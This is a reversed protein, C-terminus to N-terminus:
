PSNRCVEVGVAFGWRDVLRPDTCRGVPVEARRALLEAIWTSVRAAAPADVHTFDVFDSGGLARPMSIVDVAAREGLESIAATALAADRDGGPLQARLRDPSPLEVLVVEVGAAHSAEIADVIAATDAPDIAFDALRARQVAARVPSTDVTFDIREGDPGTTADLAALEAAREDAAGGVVSAPDRLIRRSRVLESTRGVARDLSALWGSRTEVASRYADLQDAGYAPALDLPTLGWVVLDPGLREQVEDVLWPGTVTPVAGALGVNLASRGAPDAATFAAPVFAQAAASTGAFVVDVDDGAAGRRDMAAVARQAGADYWRIEPPAEAVAVRALVEALLVVAVVAAVWGLAPRGTPLVELRGDDVPDPPTPARRSVPHAAHARTPPETSM